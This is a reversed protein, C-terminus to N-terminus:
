ESKILLEKFFNLEKKEFGKFLFILSGYLLTGLFIAISVKLIGVPAFWLLFFSMLISSLISKEIFKWDIEFRLYKFSYYWTSLFIVIYTLLTNVAAAMIGFRPILILNLGLNLFSALLWIKGLISTKKILILIQPGIGYLGYLLMSLAMFPVILYGQQAIESTSFITLLQKSLVSLGFFAPIAIMLFYKLSYKLYTKVKGIKNEDYLKSLVAPLIFSLPAEFFAVIGGLTYAPVYFGVFLAGLFFGIVYRDNFHVFWSSINGPITPLGFHLYEKIKSFRPFKIGIEKVIIGGTILFNIIRIILLASVAGFLGYDLFVAIAVLGVEGLGQFIM